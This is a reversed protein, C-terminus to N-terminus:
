TNYLRCCSSSFKRAPKPDLGEIVKVASLIDEVSVGYEKALQQYKRKGILDLSNIVLSEALSGEMNM